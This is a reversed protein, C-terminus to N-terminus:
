IDLGKLWADEDDTSPFSHVANTIDDDDDDDDDNDDISVVTTDDDDFDLQAKEDDTLDDYPIVNEPTFDMFGCPCRHPLKKGALDVINSCHTCLHNDPDVDEEDDSDAKELEEDFKSPSFRHPLQPFYTQKSQNHKGKYYSSNSSQYVPREEKTINNLENTLDMTFIPYKVKVILPLQLRTTGSITINIVGTTIDNDVYLLSFEYNRNIYRDDQGSFSKVGNPHRHIVGNFGEPEPEDFDITSHTVTQKPVYFDRGIDLINGNWEGKLFAGFELRSGHTSVMKSEITRMMILVHESIHAVLPLKIPAITHNNWEGEPDKEQATVNSSNDDVDNLQFEGDENTDGLQKM